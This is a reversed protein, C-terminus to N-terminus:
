AESWAASEIDSALPGCVRRPRVGFPGCDMLAWNGDTLERSAITNSATEPTKASLCKLADNAHEM